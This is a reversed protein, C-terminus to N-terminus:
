IVAMILTLIITVIFYYLFKGVLFDSKFLDNDPEIPKTKLKDARQKNTQKM